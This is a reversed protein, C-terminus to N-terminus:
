KYLEAKHPLGIQKFLKKYRNHYTHESLARSYGAHRIIERLKANKLYFQIKDVLEYVNRYTIVEKDPEFHVALENSYGTCYCARCMPAEFERLHLHQVLIDTPDHNAYVDLIGLCIQSDSYMQVNKPYLFALKRRLDNEALNASNIGQEVPNLSTLTKILYHARKAHSRLRSRAGWQWGPGFMHIDIGQMLLQKAVRARIGYNAGVFSVDWHSNVKEPKFYKPNSAMPFWIANAGISEFKERADMEAHLNFEFFPSITKVLYFQHANNCSFNCTPVGSRNIYSIVSPDIMGDIFYGFFLDFPSKHHEKKFTALLQDSFIDRARKSGNIYAKRGESTDFLVVDHDLDILPEYLNRYWTQNSNLASNASAEIAQFIRM